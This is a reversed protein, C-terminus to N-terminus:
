AILVVKGELQAIKQAFISSSLQLDAQLKAIQQANKSAKQKFKKTLMEFEAKQAELLNECRSSSEEQLQVRTECIQAEVANEAVCFGCKRTVVQAMSATVNLGTFKGTFSKDICKNKWLYVKALKNLNTFLKGNIFKIKNAGTLIIKLQQEFTDLKFNALYEGLGLEELSVLDQFTDSAVTKIENKTLSLSVLKTLNQFSEKSLTRISCSMGSLHTLSPFTSDLRAPLYFVKKNKYFTLGTVTEDSASSFTSGPSDILTAVHMFCTEHQGYKKPWKVNM